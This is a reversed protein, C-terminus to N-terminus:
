MGKVLGLSPSASGKTCGLIIGYSGGVIWIIGLDFGGPSVDFSGFGGTFGLSFFFFRKHIIFQYLVRQLQKMAKISDRSSNHM